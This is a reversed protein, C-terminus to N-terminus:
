FNVFHWDIQHQYTQGPRLVTNPFHPINPSNPFHQPELCIAGYQQYARNQHGRMSGDLFNATYVQMGPQTCYFRIMRGSDEHILQASAQGAQPQKLAFCHDLPFIVPKPEAFCLGSQRANIRKGTPIQQSDSELWHDAQLMLLHDGVERKFGGLNFYSHNSLNVPTPADCQAEYRISFQNQDNLTYTLRITLNGPYGEELHPSTIQMVLSTESANEEWSCDWVKKDLGQYGGHLHNGQNNQSLQWKQGELVFRGGAIRNAYRGLTAGFYWPNELYPELTSFGAVIEDAQGKSDPMRISTIIGGWNIISLSLGSPTSLTFCRIEQGDPLKGFSSIQLQPM